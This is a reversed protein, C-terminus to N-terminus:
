VFRIHIEICHTDMLMADPYKIPFSFLLMSTDAAAQYVTGCYGCDEMLNSFCYLGYSCPIQKTWASSETGLLHKCM